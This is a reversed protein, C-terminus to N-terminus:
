SGLGQASKLCRSPLLHSLALPPFFHGLVTQLKRTMEHMQFLVLKSSTMSPKACVFMLALICLTDGAVADFLATWTDFERRWIFWLSRPSVNLITKDLPATQCVWQYTPARVCRGSEWRFFFCGMNGEWNIDQRMPWELTVVTPVCLYLQTSPLKSHPLFIHSSLAPPLFLWRSLSPNLFFIFPLVLSPQLSFIFNTRSHYLLKYM